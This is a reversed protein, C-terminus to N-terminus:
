PSHQLSTYNEDDDDDESLEAHDDDDDTDDSEDSTEGYHLGGNAFTWNLWADSGEKGYGAKLGGGGSCSDEKTVWYEHVGDECEAVCTTRLEITECLRQHRFALSPVELPLSRGHPLVRVPRRPRVKRTQAPRLSQRVREYMLDPDPDDPIPLDCIHLWYGSYPLCALAQDADPGTLEMWITEWVHTFFPLRIHDGCYFSYQAWVPWLRCGSFLQSDFDLKEEWDIEDFADENEYYVAVITETTGLCSNFVKDLACWTCVAAPANKLIDFHKKDQNTKSFCLSRVFAHKVFSMDEALTFTTPNGYEATFKRLAHTFMNRCTISDIYFYDMAPRVIINIDLHWVRISVYRQNHLAAARAEHNVKLLPNSNYEVLRDNQCHKEIFIYPRLRINTPDPHNNPDDMDWILTWAVPPNDEYDNLFEEWVMVRIESPFKSFQPFKKRFHQNLRQSKERRSRPQQEQATSLSRTTM